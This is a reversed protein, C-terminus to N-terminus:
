TGNVTQQALVPEVAPLLLERDQMAKDYPRRSPQPRAPLLLAAMVAGALAVGAAVLCGGTLSYLFANTATRALGRSAQNLGLTSLQHSAVLAGGVSGKAAAVARAPLAPALTAVLRNSYLSAAVSGIIAVGLTGGFLRTADNMASGVGAKAKPVAGMIAETAPASTLGMGTGLFLMQVVIISYSTSASVTATWLLGVAFSLLGTAVIVKNGIRVALKTGVVSAIAVSGAVPLLRVGTGLPSFTKIFQFYQTVL